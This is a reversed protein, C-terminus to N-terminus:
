FGCGKRIIIPCDRLNRAVAVAWHEGARYAKRLTLVYDHKQELKACTLTMLKSTMLNIRDVDGVPDILNLRIQYILDRKFSTRM